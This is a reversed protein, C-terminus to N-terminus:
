PNLIIDLEQGAASGIVEINPRASRDKPYLLTIVDGPALKFGQATTADGDFGFGDGTVAAGGIFVNGTNVPDAKVTVLSFRAKEGSTMLDVSTTGVTLSKCRSNETILLHASKLIDQLNM